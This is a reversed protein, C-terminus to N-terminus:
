TNQNSDNIDKRKLRNVCLSELLIDFFYSPSDYDYLFVVGFSADIVSDNSSHGGAYGLNGM